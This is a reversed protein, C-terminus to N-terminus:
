KKESSTFKTMSVQLRNYTSIIYKAEKARQNWVRRAGFECLSAEDSRVPSEHCRSCLYVLYEKQDGCRILKPTGGCFPCNELSFLSM